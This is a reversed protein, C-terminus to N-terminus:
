HVNQNAIIFVTKNVQAAERVLAIAHTKCATFATQMNQRVVMTHDINLASKTAIQTEARVTHRLQTTM